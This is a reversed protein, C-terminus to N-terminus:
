RSLRTKIKKLFFYILENKLCINSFIFILFGISIQLILCLFNNSVITQLFYIFLGMVLTSMLVSIIFNKNVNLDIIRKSIRFFLTINLIFESAVSALAAGNQNFIPILLFNLFINTAAALIYSILLKKENGSSIIVQYCLLDGFSKILILLALIRITEAAPSFSEGFLVITINNSIITLGVYTPLAILILIKFGINVYENFRKRNSEFYYSIRPLFIISIATTLTIVLNILKQANAYYGVVNDNCSIGLMTIDVKSYLEAAIVCIVLYFIPQLHHKFELNHVTFKVYKRSHIINFVYNGGTALVIILAYIVYDTQKKVFIFLCILSLLKIISSRIAIYGYDEKGQYFWDINIFNFIIQLGCVLYLSLNSSLSNFVLIMYSILCLFTSFANIILLESFIKNTRKADNKCKAIERIGYTPIGLAALMTFYSVINQVYSVRGVGSPLLVRAIYTVSILPFIVNLLKYLVNYVANKALSKKEM